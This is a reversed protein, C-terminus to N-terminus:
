AIAYLREPIISVPSKPHSLRVSLATLTRLWRGSKTDIPSRKPRFPYVKHQEDVLLLSRNVYRLPYVDSVLRSAFHPPIAGHPQVKGTVADLHLM